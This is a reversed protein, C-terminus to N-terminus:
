FFYRHINQFILPFSQEGRYTNRPEGVSCNPPDGWFAKYYAGRYYYCTFRFGAPAWLIMFSPSVWKPVGEPMFGLWAHAEIAQRLEETMWPLNPHFYLIPSFFPSLYNTGGEIALFHQGQFARWTSYIIFGSLGLFTLTPQLWWADPRMTQGFGSQLIPVTGRDM